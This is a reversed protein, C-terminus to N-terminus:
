NRDLSRNLRLPSYYLALAIGVVAASLTYVALSAFTFGTPGRADTAVLAAGQAAGVCFALGSRGKLGRREVDAFALLPATVLWAGGAYYGAWRLLSPLNRVDLVQSDLLAFLVLGVCCAIALSAAWRALNVIGRMM